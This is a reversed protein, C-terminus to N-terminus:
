AEVGDEVVERGVMCGRLGPFKGFGVLVLDEFVEEGEIVDRRGVVGGEECVDM